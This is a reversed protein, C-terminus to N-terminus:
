RRNRDALVFPAGRALSLLAMVCGTLTGCDKRAVSFPEVIRGHAFTVRERVFAKNQDEEHAPPGPSRVPHSQRPQRTLLFALDACPIPSGLSDRSCSPKTQTCSPSGLSGRSCSPRPQARSPSGLSDRSCSPWNQASSLRPQRTLLLALDACLLSQRPQRTLLLAPAAYPLSQRPQRTLLLAPAACPFSQRPQRTLLLAPAACPVMSM